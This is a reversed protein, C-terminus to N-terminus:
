AESRSFSRGQSPRRDMRSHRPSLSISRSLRGLSALIRSRSSTIRSTAFIAPSLSRCSSYVVTGTTTPLSGFSLMRSESTRPAASTVTCRGSYSVTCSSRRISRCSLIRRSRITTAGFTFTSGYCVAGFPRAPVAPVLGTPPQIGVTQAPLKEIRTPVWVVRPPATEQRLSEQGLYFPFVPSQLNCVLAPLGRMARVSAVDTAIAGVAITMDLMVGTNLTQLSMM